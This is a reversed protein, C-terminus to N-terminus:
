RSIGFARLEETSLAGDDKCRQCECQFLYERWLHAKREEARNMRPNVYTISLQEGKQVDRVLRLQLTYNSGFIPHEVKTNPRCDHNITSHVLFMGGDQNNLNYRGLAEMWRDFNWLREEWIRPIRLPLSIRGGGRKGSTVSGPMRDGEEVVVVTPFAEKTLRYADAWSTRISSESFAWDETRMQRSEQHATAFAEWQEWLIEAETPSRSVLTLLRAYARAVGMIGAWGQVRGYAALKAFHPNQQPCELGHHQQIATRECVRTCYREGCRGCQGELSGPSPALPRGCMGCGERKEVRAQERWGPFFFTAKEVHVVQGKSLDQTAFLGKGATPSVMRIELSPPLSGKPLPILHSVPSPSAKGTLTSGSESAGRESSELTQHTIPPRLLALYKKVRKESVAWTLHRDLLATHVKRIGFGPDSKLIVEISETLQEETPTLTRQELVSQVQAQSM